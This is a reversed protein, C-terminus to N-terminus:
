RYIYIQRLQRILENQVESRIRNGRQCQELKINDIFYKVVYEMSAMTGDGRIANTWIKPAQWLTQTNKFRENLWKGLALLYDDLRTEDMSPQSIKQFLKNMRFKLLQIKREWEEQLYIPDQETFDPDKSWAKYWNRIEGIVTNDLNATEELTALRRKGQREKVLELGVLKLIDLFYGQIKRTEELELGGQELVNIKGALDALAEQLEIVLNNANKEALLRQRGAEKKAQKHKVFENNDAFVYYKDFVQLKEDINGLTDPHAMVVERIIRMAKSPATDARLPLSISYYYHPAPRSLNLIQQQQLAGNPLFVECNSDILFLNTLRIGIKKIVALSGDQMSIVDGFQFPSDILLVLGSFFNNLIGQLAFGLVVTLSGFVVSLITLDVGLSQIFLFAGILYIIVPATNELIPILSLSGM